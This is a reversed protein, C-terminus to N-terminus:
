LGSKTDQPEPLFAEVIAASQEPTDGNLIGNEHAAEGPLQERKQVLRYKAQYEAQKRRRNEQQMLDRYKYHNLVRWGDPVKEIRRGDFEQHTESKMDPSKLVILADECERTTLNATRALWSNTKASVIGHADKLALMTMFLIRVEKSEEWLTSEVVTSWLPTYTKM